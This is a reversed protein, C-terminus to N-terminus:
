AKKSAAVDRSTSANPTQVCEHRGNSRKYFRCPIFFSVSPSYSLLNEVYEGLRQIDVCFDCSESWGCAGLSKTALQIALEHRGQLWRVEALHFLTNSTETHGPGVAALKVQLSRQYYDAATELEHQALYLGAINHLAFAVRIDKSGYNKFLMQVSEEYLPGAKDYQKTLRYLEALNQKASAVHPDDCGFGLVAHHHAKVLFKEAESYKKDRVLDRGRDTFVRWQATHYQGGDDSDSQEQEEPSDSTTIDDDKERCIATSASFGVMFALPTSLNEFIARRRGTVNYQESRATATLSNQIRDCAQYVARIIKLCKSARIVM